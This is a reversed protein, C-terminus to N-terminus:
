CVAVGPASVLGHVAVGENREFLTIGPILRQTFDRVAEVVGPLESPRHVQGRSERAEQVGRANVFTADSAWDDLTLGTTEDVDCRRRTEGAEDARPIPGLEFWM